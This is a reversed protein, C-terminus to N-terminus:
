HCQFNVTLYNYISYFRSKLDHHFTCAYPKEIGIQAAVVEHRKRLGASVLKNGAVLNADEPLPFEDSLMEQEIEHQKMAPFFHWTSYSAVDGSKVDKVIMIHCTPDTEMDHEFLRTFHEISNATAGKPFIVGFGPDSACADFQVRAVNELDEFTAPVVVFSPM